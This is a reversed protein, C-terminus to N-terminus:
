TEVSTTALGSWRGCADRGILYVRIEIEGIRFIALDDLNAELAQRLDRYRQAEAREEETMGAEDRTLWHFFQDVTEQDTVTDDPLDLRELLGELSPAKDGSGDFSVFDFPYDSESMYLLDETLNELHAQLAEGCLDAVGCRREQDVRSYKVTGPQSAPIAFRVIMYPRTLVQAVMCDPGPSEVRATIKLTKGSDTTRIRVIEALYGATPRTGAGYFALWEKSFDFESSPDFGFFSKFSRATRIIRGAEQTARNPELTLNYVVTFPIDAQDAKGEDQAAPVVGDSVLDMDGDDSTDCGALLAALLMTVGLLFLCSRCRM